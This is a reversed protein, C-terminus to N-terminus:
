VVGWARPKVNVYMANLNVVAVSLDADLRAAPNVLSMEYGLVLVALVKKIEMWAIHQGICVRRGRGFGIHATEMVRLQEAGSELWREPRFVEADAGFAQPNLHMALQLCGVSTGQPLFKGVIDAGGAPVLREIPHSLPPFLRIGEKIVAHLYPLKSVQSYAPIPTTLNQVSQLEARLKALKDPSKMLFFMTAAIASSSTDSGASIMSILLSVVATENLTDPNRDMAELFRTLLDPTESDKQPTKMRQTLQTRAAVVIGSQPAKRTRMAIPNRFLLRELGPISGWRSWHRMRERTVSIMGAVDADAALCGKPVNFAFGSAADLGFYAMTRSMDFTQKKNLAKLLEEITRDIHLEYDLTMAPTFANAVSRRLRNHRNEDAITILSDIEKGHSVGVQVKYSNAIPYGARDSYIIGVVSPDNISVSCVGYRVIPGYQKHLEVLKDRLEGRRQHWARWYDSLGALLPGPVHNLQKWNTYLRWCWLTVVVVCITSLAGM